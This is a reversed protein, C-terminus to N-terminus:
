HPTATELELAAQRTIFPKVTADSDPVDAPPGRARLIKEIVDPRPVAAVIRMPGGCAPCISVDVEHVRRLLRAWSSKVAFPCDDDSATQPPPEAVAPVISRRHPSGPAVVGHYRLANKFKPGVLAVIRSLMQYPTMVVSTTGDSWPRKLEYLFRSDALERLRSACIPPRCVYRCLRELANRNKASIRVKAHLNFGEHYVCGSPTSARQPAGHVKAAGARDPRFADRGSISAAACAALLSTPIM